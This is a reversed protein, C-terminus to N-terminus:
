KLYTSSVGARGFVGSIMGKAGARYIDGDSLTGKLADRMVAVFREDNLAETVAQTVVDMVSQKLEEDKSAAVMAAVASGMAERVFDDDSLAGVFAIRTVNLVTEKFHANDAAKEMASQITTIAAEQLDDSCFVEIASAKVQETLADSQLARGISKAVADLLRDTQEKNGEDYFTVMTDTVANSLGDAFPRTFYAVFSDLFISFCGFMFFLIAPARDPSVFSVASAIFLAAPIVTEWHVQRGLTSFSLQKKM